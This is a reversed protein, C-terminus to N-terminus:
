SSSGAAARSRMTSAPSWCRWSASGASSDAGRRSARPAPRRSSRRDAPELARDQRLIAQHLERLQHSPEIGLEEVLASRASQYAALAEAQRESRYLALMLQGRPRERLPHEGVLAELEGVLAGHRGAGLDADIRAELCALREEELRAIETQAFREFAFDALPRGRWLSLADHFKGEAALRRFRDLDLEGDAVELVYGPPRTQLRQRGLLKRLNSIYVQLGNGASEPPTEGWLADILRDTSVVENAHVLLMALLARQKSGAIEIPREDDSVQLPGLVGYRM